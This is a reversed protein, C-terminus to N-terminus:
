LVRKLRARSHQATGDSRVFRHTQRALNGVCQLRRV